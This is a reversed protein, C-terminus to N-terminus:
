KRIVAFYLLNMIVKKLYKAFYYHRGGKQFFMGGAYHNMIWIKKM